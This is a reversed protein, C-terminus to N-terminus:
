GGKKMPKRRVVVFTTDDPLLGNEKTPSAGDKVVAADKPNSPNMLHLRRGVTFPNAFYRDDEWFQSLPGVVDERGPLNKQVARVMDMVGDTGVIVSRVDATHLVAYAQLQLLSPQTTAITSGTIGYALYPPANDPFPGLEYLTGNIAYVGDGIGFVFTLRKGVVVGVITFLFFDDVIERVTGGMGHALSQIHDLTITRIYQLTEEISTDSADDAFRIACERAILRVGLQAGVESYAGSGCGDSVVAVTVSPQQIAVFADQNNRLMHVHTQGRTSGHAVEFDNSM